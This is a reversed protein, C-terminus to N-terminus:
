LFLDAMQFEKHKGEKNNAQGNYWAIFFIFIFESAYCTLESTYGPLIIKITSFVMPTCFLMTVMLLKNSFSFEKQRLYDIAMKLIFLLIFANTAAYIYGLIGDTDLLM